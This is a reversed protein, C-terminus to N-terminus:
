RDELAKAIAAKKRKNEEEIRKQREIVSEVDSSPTETDLDIDKQESVQDSKQPLTENKNDNSTGSVTKEGM